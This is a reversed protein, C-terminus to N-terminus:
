TRFHWCYISPSSPPLFLLSLPSFPPVPIVSASLLSRSPTHLFFIFPLFKSAETGSTTCFSSFRCFSPRRFTNTVSIPSRRHFLDSPPTTRPGPPYLLYYLLYLSAFPHTSNFLQLQSTTFSSFFLPLSSSLFFLRRLFLTPRVICDCRLHHPLSDHIIRICYCIIHLLISYLTPSPFYFANSYLVSGQVVTINSKQDPNVIIITVPSGRDADNRM